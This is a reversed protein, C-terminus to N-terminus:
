RDLKYMEIFTEYLVSYGYKLLKRFLDTDQFHSQQLDWGILYYQRYHEALMDFGLKHLEDVVRTRNWNWIDHPNERVLFQNLLRAPFPSV